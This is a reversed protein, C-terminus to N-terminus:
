HGFWKRVDFWVQKWPGSASRDMLVKAKLTGLWSSASIKGVRNAEALALLWAVRPASFSTGADGAGTLRGDFGVVLMSTTSEIAVVSTEPGLQGDRRLDLVALTDPYGDCRDPFDIQKDVFDKGYGNGAASVVIGSPGSRGPFNYVGGDVTWSLSLVFFGDTIRAVLEAFTWVADIWAQVTYILSADGTKREQEKLQSLLAEAEATVESAIPPPVAMKGFGDLMRRRTGGIELVNAMLDEAGQVPLLPLYVVQVAPSDASDIAALERIAGGVQACHDNPPPTFTGAAAGLSRESMGFRSRVKPILDGMAALAATRAEVCPWGTDLVFMYATRQHHTETAAKVTAAEEDTLIRIANTPCVTAGTVSIRIEANPTSVNPGRFAKKKALEGLREKSVDFRIIKQAAARRERPVSARAASAVLDKGHGSVSYGLSVRYPVTKNFTSPEAPSAPPVAPIKLLHGPILREPELEPNSAVISAQLLRYTEPLDSVGLRYEKLIIGSLTDGTSVEVARAPALDLLQQLSALSRASDDYPGDVVVEVTQIEAESPAIVPSAPRGALPGAALLCALLTGDSM